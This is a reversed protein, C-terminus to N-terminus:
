RQRLGDRFGRFLNTISFQSYKSRYRKYVKPISFSLFIMSSLVQAYSWHKKLLLIYNRPVYYLYLKRTSDSSRSEGKHWIIAEPVHCIQFGKKRARICFDIDEGGGFFFREDLNGIEKLVRVSTCLCTGTIFDAEINDTKDISMTGKWYNITGKSCGKVSPNFYDYNQAGLIGIMEDALAKEMLQSVWDSKVITDNNLLILYDPDLNSLAFIIGVNNGKAFGYNSKNKILFLQNSNTEVKAVLPAHIDLEDIEIIKQPKSLCNHAFYQSTSLPRGSAYRKIKEISDNESHNDVIVINYNTYDMQLLSELCEITDEWGNWNLLIITVNPHEM